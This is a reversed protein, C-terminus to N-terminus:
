KLNCEVYIRAQSSAQFSTKAECSLINYGNIVVQGPCASFSKVVSRVSDVSFVM